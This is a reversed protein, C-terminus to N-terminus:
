HDTRIDNWQQETVHSIIQTFKKKGSLSNIELLRKIMGHNYFEPAINISCEGWKILDEEDDFACMGARKLSQQLLNFVSSESFRESSLHALRYNCIIRNKIGIFDIDCWNGASLSLTYSLRLQNDSQNIKNILQGDGDIFNWVEVPGLLRQQQWDDLISLLSIMIAPDYYRLLVDKGDRQQIAVKGLYAALNIIDEECTLWGCIMRGKGLLIENPEIEKLAQIISEHLIKCDEPLSLDLSVLCPEFESTLYRNAVPVRVGGRDIIKNYFSSDQNRLRIIAADIMLICNRNLARFRNFIEEGIDGGQNQMAQLSYDYTIFSEKM